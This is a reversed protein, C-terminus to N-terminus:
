HRHAINKYAAGFDFPKQNMFAHSPKPIHCSLCMEKAPMRLGLSIAKQIDKMVEETAYREGPGHCTECQVGEEIHFTPGRFEAPTDAATGHCKLCIASNQPNSAEVQFHSKVRDSMEAMGLMVWTRAHRTGLWTKYERVHCTGCAENGVYKAAPRAMSDLDDVNLRYNGETSKAFLSGL